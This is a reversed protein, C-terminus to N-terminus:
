LEDRMGGNAKNRATAGADSAPSAGDMTGRKKRAERKRQMSRRRRNPDRRIGSPPRPSLVRRSPRSACATVTVFSANSDQTHGHPSQGACGSGRQADSPKPLRDLRGDMQEMKVFFSALEQRRASLSPTRTAGLAPTRHWEPQVHRAHARAM